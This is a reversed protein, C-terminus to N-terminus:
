LQEGIQAPGSLKALAHYVQRTDPASIYWQSFDFGAMKQEFVPNKAGIHVRIHIRGAFALSEVGFQSTTDPVLRRGVALVGWTVAPAIGTIEGNGTREIEVSDDSILVHGDELLREALLSKGSGPEGTILVGTGDVCVLTGHIVVPHRQQYGLALFREKMESLSLSTFEHSARQSLLPTKEGMGDVVVIHPLTDVSHRQTSVLPLYENRSLLLIHSPNDPSTGSIEPAPQLCMGLDRNHAISEHM